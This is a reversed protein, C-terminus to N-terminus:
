DTAPAGDEGGLALLAMSCGVVEECCRRKTTMPMPVPQYRWEANVICIGNQCRSNTYRETATYALSRKRRTEVAAEQAAAAASASAAEAAAYSASMAEGRKAAEFHFVEDHMTDATSAFNFPTFRKSPGRTPLVPVADDPVGDPKPM